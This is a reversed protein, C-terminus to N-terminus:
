ECWVLGRGGQHRTTGEPCTVNNGYGVGNTDLLQSFWAGFGAVTETAAQGFSKDGCEGVPHNANVGSPWGNPCNACSGPVGAEAFHCEDGVALVQRACKTGSADTGFSCKSCSNYAQPDAVCSMGPVMTWVSPTPSTAVSTGCETRGTQPNFAAGDRGTQCRSCSQPATPEADMSCWTGSPITGNPGRCVACAAVNIGSSGSPDCVAACQDYPGQAAKSRGETNQRSATVFVLGTGFSVALFLLLFLPSFARGHVVM